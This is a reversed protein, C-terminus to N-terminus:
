IKNRSEPTNFNNFSRKNPPLLIKQNSTKLIHQMSFNALASHLAQQHIKQLFVGTYIGCFPEIFGHTQYGYFEYGKNAKFTDLLKEVTEAEMEVMDCAILLLDKAPQHEHVSLLGKLPGEVPLKSDIVLFEPRFLRSYTELQTTNISVVYPVSLDKFIDAIMHAWYVGNKLLLGKDTGMRRSEGGCMVVALLNEM